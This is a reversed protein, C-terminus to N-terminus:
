DVIENVPFRDLLQIARVANRKLSNSVTPVYPIQSLIDVTRRLMRVVDGEDLSTKACLETWEVGL